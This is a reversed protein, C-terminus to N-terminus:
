HVYLLQTGSTTNFGDAEGKAMQDTLKGHETELKLVHDELGDVSRLWKITDLLSFLYVLSDSDLRPSQNRAPM